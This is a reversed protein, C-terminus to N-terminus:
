CLEIEFMKAVNFHRMEHRLHCFWEMSYYKTEEFEATWLWTPSVRRKSMAWSAKRYMFVIDKKEKLAKEIMLLKKELLAHGMFNIISVNTKIDSKKLPRTLTLGDYTTVRSLAVYTQGKEFAWKDLDLNIKELTLWQSKHITSAWGLRFPFQEFEWVEEYELAKLDSDYHPSYIPWTMRRLSIEKKVWPVSILVEDVVGGYLKVDSITWITWNRIPSDKLNRICMIQAWVKFQLEEDTPYVSEPFEWWVSAESYYLRGELEDLCDNNIKEARKRTPTLTLINSHKIKSIDDEVKKNILDIDEQNYIWVRFNNLTEIFKRDSQRYIKDLEVVEFHCDDFVHASFFFESYYKTYFLVREEWVLVPPLQYLDGVCVIQKGWFPLDSGLFYQCISNVIDFMDARVMSIEDILLGDCGKLLNRKERSFHISWSMLRQKINEPTSDLPIWFFSHLTSGKWDLNIAAIGTPALPLFSKQKEDILRKIILSKWTWAKGTLFLNKWQMIMDYVRQQEKDLKVEDKQVEQHLIKERKVSSKNKKKKLLVDDNKLSVSTQVRDKELVSCQKKGGKVANGLKVDKWQSVM